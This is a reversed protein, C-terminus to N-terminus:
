EVCLVGGLEFSNANLHPCNSVSGVATVNISTVNKFLNTGRAINTIQEFVSFACPMGNPDLDLVGTIQAVDGETVFSDGQSFRAKHSLITKGYDETGTINGVLSGSESFVLGSNDSLNLNMSGIQLASTVNETNVSGTVDYCTEAFSSASYGISTTAACLAIAIIKSKM